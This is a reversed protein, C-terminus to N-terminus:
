LCRVHDDNLGLLFPQSKASPMNLNIKKFSFIDIKSLNARFSTGLPEILLIEANTWIIAQRLDPSLGYDSGIITLKSVCIHTVRGWNTLKLTIEDDCFLKWIKPPIQSLIFGSSTSQAMSSHVTPLWRASTPLWSWCVIQDVHWQHIPYILTGGALLQRCPIDVNWIVLIRWRCLWM